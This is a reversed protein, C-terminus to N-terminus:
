AAEKACAIAHLAEAEAEALPGEIVPPELTQRDRALLEARSRALRLAAPGDFGLEIVMLVEFGARTELRAPLGLEVRAASLSWSRLHGVSLGARLTVGSPKRVRPRPRICGSPIRAHPCPDASVFALRGAILAPVEALPGCRPPTPRQLTVAGAPSDLLRAQRRGPEAVWLHDDIAIWLRRAEFGFRIDVDQTPDALRPATALVELDDEEVFFIPEDSGPLPDLEIRQWCDPDRSSWCVWPSGAHVLVWADGSESALAPLPRAESPSRAALTILLLSTSLIATNM